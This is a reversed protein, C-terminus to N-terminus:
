KVNSMEKGYMNQISVIRDPLFLLEYVNLVETLRKIDMDALAPFRTPENTM